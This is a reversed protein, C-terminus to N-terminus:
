RPPAPGTSDRLVLEPDILVDHEIPPEDERPILGRCVIQGIQERPVHATTLPPYCFESLKINDFGTVSIDRPVRLNRDRLERLVGVAMLDNVCVIATPQHGSVLLQRAAFRGGELSDSDTAVHVEIGKAAAKGEKSAVARMLADRRDSLPGLAGHHGVFGFKRHGIGYLYEVVREIGRRYNVRISLLNGGTKGADYLVVPMAPYGQLEEIVNDPTESVILALGALRRGLMSRVCSALRDPKYDTNAVVIDYGRGRAYTEVTKYIDFFFPNEFNSLIVGVTRSKGEALSRAHVNPHYKLEEIAQLVRDRTKGRVLEQNNLVRSVTATSVGARKAVQQLNM